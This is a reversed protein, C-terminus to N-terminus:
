AEDIRALTAIAAHRYISQQPFFSSRGPTEMGADVDRIVIVQAISGIEVGGLVQFNIQTPSVYLIAAPIGNVTVEIGGLEYPLPVSSALLELAAFESGFVSGFALPTLVTRFSAADTVNLIKPLLSVIPESSRIVIAVSNSQLTNRVVLIPLTGPTETLSAPLTAELATPSRFTTELLELDEDSSPWAAVSNEFFGRGSLVVRTEGNGAPIEAPSVSSITAAAETITLAAPESQLDELDDPTVVTINLFGPSALDGFPGGDDPYERRRVSDCSCQWEV